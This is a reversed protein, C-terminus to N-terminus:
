FYQRIKSFFDRSIGSFNFSLTNKQDWEKILPMWFGLNLM